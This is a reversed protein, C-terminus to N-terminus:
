KGNKQQIDIYYNIYSEMENEYNDGDEVEKGNSYDFNLIELVKPYIFCSTHWSIEEEYFDYNLGLKYIIRKVIEEMVNCSPHYDDIMVKEIALNATIYDMIKIDWMKEREMFKKIACEKQMDLDVKDRLYSDIYEEIAKVNWKKEICYDLIRDRRNKIIVQTTDYVVEENKTLQPYIFKSFGVLNPYCIVVCEKNLKSTLYTFSFYESYKNKERIDQCMFVDAHELIREDIQEKRSYVPQLDYIFYKESFQKQRRLSQMLYYMYCNGFIIALKKQYLGAPIFDEFERLGKNLLIQKIEEYFCVSVVIQANGIKEKNIQEQSIVEYGYFGQRQKKEDKDICFKLHVSDQYKDWFEEGNEGVGYLVIEKKGEFM